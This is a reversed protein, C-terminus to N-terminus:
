SETLENKPGLFENKPGLPTRHIDTFCSLFYLKMDRVAIFSLGPVQIFLHLLSITLSTNHSYGKNSNIWHHEAPNYTCPYHGKVNSYKIRKKLNYLSLM